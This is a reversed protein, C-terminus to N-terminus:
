RSDVFSSGIPETTEPHAMHGSKTIQAAAIEAKSIQEPTMVEALSKLRAAARKEGGACAAKYWEYAAVHDLPVGKGQEYLYALDLQARPISQEAALRVWKAAESYDRATGTGTYYMWALNEQATPDSSHAATRFWTLAQPFDRQRFYLSALNCEAVVNGHAAASQYWHKAEDINKKLGEGHEYMAGLNNQALVHGQKAAAGYYWSARKFDRRVGEGHEYLYALAFEADPFVQAASQRFWKAAEANNQAVGKGMYSRGLLYAAKADGQEAGRQLSVLDPQTVGAGSPGEQCLASGTFFCFWSVVSLTFILLLFTNKNQVVWSECRGLSAPLAAACV